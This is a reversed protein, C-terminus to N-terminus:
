VSTKFGHNWSHCPSEVTTGTLHAGSAKESAYAVPHLYDDSGSDSTSSPFAITHLFYDDWQSDPTSPDFSTRSSGQTASVLLLLVVVTICMETMMAYRWVPWICAQQHQYSHKLSLNWSVIDPFWLECISCSYNNIRLSNFKFSGPFCFNSPCLEQCYASCAFM